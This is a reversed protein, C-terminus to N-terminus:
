DDVLLIRVAARAIFVIDVVIIRVNSESLGSLIVLCIGVLPRFGCSIHM